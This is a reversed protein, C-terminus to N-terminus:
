AQAAKLAAVEASLEQVAAVLLPVLKSQDIGQYTPNGNEDVEDKEGTVAEPVVAQAEHALFGDVKVSPDAKWAFRIPKLEGLRELAGGIPETDQKLRYDSSTNYATASANTSISGVVGNPNSFSIHFRATTANGYSEMGVATTNSSTTTRIRAQGATPTTAYSARSNWAGQHLYHVLDSDIVGGINFNGARFMVQGPVTGASVSGSVNLDVSAGSVYESGDWGGAILRGVADGDSVASGGANKRRLAINAVAGERDVTVFNTAEPELADLKSALASNLATVSPGLRKDGIEDFDSGTWVYAPRTAM